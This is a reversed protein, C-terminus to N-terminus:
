TASGTKRIIELKEPITLIIDRTKVPDVQKKNKPAM